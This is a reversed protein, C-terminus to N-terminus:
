KFWYERKENVAMAEGPVRNSRFVLWKGDSTWQPHTPYTKSDGASKTTLFILKQGTIPDKVIRKESPFRTGIQGFTTAVFLLLVSNLLIKTKM